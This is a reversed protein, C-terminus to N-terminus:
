LVQDLKVLIGDCTMLFTILFFFVTSLKTLPHNTSFM